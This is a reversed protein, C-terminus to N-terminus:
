GFRAGEESEKEPKDPPPNRPRFLVLGGVGIAIATVPVLNVLRPAGGYVNLLLELSLLGTILLVACCIMLKHRAMLSLVRNVFALGREDVLTIIGFAIPMAAIWCHNSGFHEDEVLGVLMQLGCFVAVWAVLTAWVPRPACSAKSVVMAAFSPVILLLARGLGSPFVPMCALITTSPQV